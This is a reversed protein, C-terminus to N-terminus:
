FIKNSTGKLKFLHFLILWTQKAEEERKSRMWLITFKHFYVFWIRCICSLMFVKGKNLSQRAWLIHEISCVQFVKRSPHHAFRTIVETHFGAVPSSVFSIKAPLNAKERQVQTLLSTYLKKKESTRITIVGFSRPNWPALLLAFPPLFNISQSPSSFSHCIFKYWVWSSVM